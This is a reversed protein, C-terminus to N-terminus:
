MAARIELGLMVLSEAPTVVATVGGLNGRLDRRPADPRPLLAYRVEDGRAWRSSLAVAIPVLAVRVQESIM